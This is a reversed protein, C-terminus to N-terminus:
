FSYQYRGEYHVVDFPWTSLNTPYSLSEVSQMSFRILMGIAYVTVPIQQAFWIMLDIEHILQDICM